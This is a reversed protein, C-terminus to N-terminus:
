LSAGEVAEVLARSRAHPLPVYRGHLAQALAAAEERPRPSIDIVIAHHGMRAISGALDSSQAMAAQRDALGDLTMNAKGDTLIAISPTQGRKEAADALLGAERLGAALPTGGGGVLAGLARRARTLSRTPPLLVEAKMQRFAILAVQSRKVHAKALMLEVAGKAEALRTLASSGSADVVFITLSVRRQEFHRVQLDSKRIHLVDAREDEAAERRIRQWPAAARLTDTLALRRGNGPIGPRSGRPRGRRAAREKRGSRGSKGGGPQIRGQEIGDAIDQPIAAAAAAVLIDDLPVSEAEQEQDGKEGDGGPPEPTEQSPPPEGEVDPVRTARSCLVLRIAAELDETDTGESGRLAAHASACRQAFLLPRMSAIGLAWATSALAKRQREDIAPMEGAMGTVAPWDFSLSRADKLDAHLAAREMLLAPPAEDPEIGDDLLIVSIENRDMALAIQAAVEEDLREAMPVILIGGQARALLGKKLVARGEALTRALDLGGLLQELGVNIPLKVVPGHAALAASLRTVLVDRVPGFGRLVLGGFRAPAAAFIRAALFADAIAPDAASPLTM